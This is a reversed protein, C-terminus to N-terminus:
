LIVVVAFFYANAFQVPRTARVIRDFESIIENLVRLNPLDLEFNHLSAFMVAVMAYDEYYLEHKALSTLYM